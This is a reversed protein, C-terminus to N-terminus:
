IKRERYERIRETLRSIYLDSARAYEGALKLRRNTLDALYSEAEVLQGPKDIRGSVFRAITRIFQNINRHEYEKVRDRLLEIATDCRALMEGSLNPQYAELYRLRNKVAEFDQETGIKGTATLMANEIINQVETQWSPLGYKRSPRPWGPPQPMVSGIEAPAQDGQLFAMSEPPTDDLKRAAEESQKPTYSRRSEQNWETM